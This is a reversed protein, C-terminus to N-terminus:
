PTNSSGHEASDGRPNAGTPRPNAGTPAVEVAKEDGHPAVDEAIRVRLGRTPTALVTSVVRTGVSLDGSVCVTDDRTWRIDVDRPDLTMENTVVWVKGDDLAGRPVCFADSLERGSIEVQVFSGPVLPLGLEPDFPREIEVLVQARRTKADLENVMRLVRGSREIVKENSLRHRVTVSAGEEANTGPIQIMDLDEFPVSATVWLADTGILKAVQTQPGVVQGVDVNETIVTANFPAKLKTRGLTVRARDLGSKSAALNTEAAALQSVRSVTPRASEIDEGLMELEQRAAEGRSTEMELELRAVQVRSAAEVIAFEYDRPDIQALVQGKTVNGGPILEDAVFTLRGSLEPVVTVLKAPATVGTTAVVSEGPAAQLDFVAVAPPPQQVEAKAAKPSLKVMAAAIGVSGAVAALPLVLRKIWVNM